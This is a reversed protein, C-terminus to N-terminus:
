GDSSTDILALITIQMSLLVAGSWLHCAPNMFSGEAISM